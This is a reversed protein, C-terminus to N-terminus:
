IVTIKIHLCALISFLTNFFPMLHQVGHLNLELGSCRKLLLCM